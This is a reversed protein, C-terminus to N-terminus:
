PGSISTASRCTSLLPSWMASSRLVSVAIALDDILQHAVSLDQIEGEDCGAVVVTMEGIPTEDTLAALADSATGRYYREWQKTLSTAVVVQREGLVDRIDTLMALIRHPAEYFVLTAPERKREQLSAVRKGPSRPLFGVFLFADTPLAAVSLAAIAACPGPVPILAAGADAAARVVRYGPDSVLPTGADSILAVSQGEGLWAALQAARSSENHDHCSVLKNASVGLESLLKRAVRTDEAAVVDVAALVERARPSLDDVCGIPTAVVYLGPEM